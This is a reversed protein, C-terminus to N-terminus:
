WNDHHSSHKSFKKCKQVWRTKNYMHFPRPTNKSSITVGQALWPWRIRQVHVMFPGLFRWEHTIRRYLRTTHLVWPAKKSHMLNTWFNIILLMECIFKLRDKVPPPSIDHHALCAAFAIHVEIQKRAQYVCVISMSVNIIDANPRCISPCYIYILFRSYPIINLHDKYQM